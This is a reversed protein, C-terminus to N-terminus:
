QTLDRVKSSTFRHSTRTYLLGERSKTAFVEATGIAEETVVAILDPNLGRPDVGSIIAVIDSGSFAPSRKNFAFWRDIASAVRLDAFALTKDSLSTILSRTRVGFGICEYTLDEDNLEV